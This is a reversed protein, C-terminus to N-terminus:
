WPWDWTLGPEIRNGCGFFGFLDLAAGGVAFIVLLTGAVRATNGRGMLAIGIACSAAVIGGLVALFIAKNAPCYNTRLTEAVSSALHDMATLVVEVVLVV